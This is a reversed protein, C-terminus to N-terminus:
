TTGPVVAAGAAAVLGGGWRAAVTWNGTAFNIRTQGTM